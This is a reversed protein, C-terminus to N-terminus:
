RGGGPRPRGSPAPGTTDIEGGEAKRGNLAYVQVTDSNGRNDWVDMATASLKLMGDFYAKSDFCLTCIVTTDPKEFKRQGVASGRVMLSVQAVGSPDSASIVACATDRVTDGSHPELLKVVPGKLEPKGPPPAKYGCSAFLATILAASFLRRM